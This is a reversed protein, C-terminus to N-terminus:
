RRGLLYFKGGSKFSNNNSPFLINYKCLVGNPHFTTDCKVDINSDSLGQIFSMGAREGVPRILTKPYTSKYLPVGNIRGMEEITHWFAQTETNRFSFTNWMFYMVGGDVRLALAASNTEAFNSVVFLSLSKYGDLSASFEVSSVDETLTIDEILEWDGGGVNALAEAVAKGSQANTSTPSYTQDAVVTLADGNPDIQVNCDEPMDGSGLYVGSLGRDGKDGKLSAKQEETLNEFSMAGDAGKLSALWEQETGEFGNKLAVEYASLGDKGYVGQLTGKLTGKTAVTGKIENM